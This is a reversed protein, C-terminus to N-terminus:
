RGMAARLSATFGTFSAQIVRATQPSTLIVTVTALGILAGALNSIKELTM